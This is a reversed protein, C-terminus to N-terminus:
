CRDRNQEYDYHQQLWIWVMMAAGFNLLLTSLKGFRWTSLTMWMRVSNIKAEVFVFDLNPCRMLNLHMYMWYPSWQYRKMMTSVLEIFHLLFAISNARREIWPKGGHLLSAGWIRHNSNSLNSRDIQFRHSHSLYQTSGKAEPSPVVPHKM